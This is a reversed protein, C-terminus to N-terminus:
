RSSTSAPPTSAGAGAMNAFLLGQKIIALTQETDPALYWRLSPGERTRFRRLLAIVPTGVLAMDRSRALRYSRDSPSLTINIDGGPPRPGAIPEGVTKLTVSYRTADGHGETSVTAIRAHVIFEANQAREILLNRYENTTQGSFGIAAPEISNDFLGAMRESLYEPPPEAATKASPGCATSGLFVLAFIAIFRESLRHM